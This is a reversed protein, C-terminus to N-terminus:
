VKKLNEKGKNIVPLKAIDGRRSRNAQVGFRSYIRACLQRVASLKEDRVRCM